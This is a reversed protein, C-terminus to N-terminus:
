GEEGSRKEATKIDRALRLNLFNVLEGRKPGPDGIGTTPLRELEGPAIALALEVKPRVRPERRGQGGGLCFGLKGTRRETQWFQKTGGGSVFRELKWCRLTM